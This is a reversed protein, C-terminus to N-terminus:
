RVDRRDVEPVAHQQFWKGYEVFQNVPIPSPIARGSETAYDHLTLTSSGGIDSGRYPSRLVMAIPTQTEWFQLPEGFIRTERGAARLHAAAALGYPGAGVIAVDCTNCTRVPAIAINM